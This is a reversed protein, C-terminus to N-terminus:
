IGQRNEQTTYPPPWHCLEMRRSINGCGRRGYISLQQTRRRSEIVPRAPGYTIDSIVRGWRFLRIQINCRYGMLKELRGLEGPTAEHYRSARLSEDKFIPESIWTDRYNFTAIHLIRARNGVEQRETQSPRHRNQREELTPRDQVHDQLTAVDVEVLLTCEMRLEATGIQMGMQALPDDRRPGKYPETQRRETTEQQRQPPPEDNRYPPSKRRDQQYARPPPKPTTDM